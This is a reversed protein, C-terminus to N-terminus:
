EVKVKFVEKKLKIKTNIFKTGKLFTKINFRFDHELLINRIINFCFINSSSGDSLQFLVNIKKYNKM